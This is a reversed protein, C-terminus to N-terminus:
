RLQSMVEPLVINEENISKSLNSQKCSQTHKEPSGKFKVINTAKHKLKENIIFEAYNVIGACVPKIFDIETVRDSTLKSYDKSVVAKAIKNISVKATRM